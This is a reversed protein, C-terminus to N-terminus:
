CWRFGCRRIAEKALEVLCILGEVDQFSFDIAKRVATVCEMKQAEELILKAAEFANHSKTSAEMAFNVDQTFDLLRVFSPRNRPVVIYTGSAHSVTCKSPTAKEAIAQNSLNDIDSLSSLPSEGQPVMSITAQLENRDRNSASHKCFVIRMYAVEMCKYALAAATMEKRKEYQQGCSECLRAATSYARMQNIERHAGNEGNSTELLSAGHLFKLAAQFFVENSEFGFSSTELLEAYDKLDKAEKLADTATQGSHNMRGPSPMNSSRMVHLNPLSQEVNHHHAQSKTGAHAPLKLLVKPSESNGPFGDFVVGQHAELLTGHDEIEQKTEIECHSFSKPVIGRADLQTVKSEGGFDQVLNQQPFIKQDTSCTVVSKADLEEHEKARSQNGMRCDGSLWGLSNKVGVKNNKLAKISKTGSNNVMNCKNEVVAGPLHLQGKPDTELGYRTSKRPHLDEHENVMNYVMKDSVSSRENGKSQSASDRRSGQPFLENDDYDYIKKFRDEHHSHETAHQDRLSPVNKTAYIDGNTLCGNEVGSYPMSKIVITHNADRDWCDLKSVKHYLKEEKEMGPQGLNGNGEGDWNRRGNGRGHVDGDVTDSRGSTDGASTFKGLYPIRMPSSSVSEVPSGNLAEFNARTKHPGSVKSSSSVAAMSVQRTVSRRRSSALGDLTKQSANKRRCKSIQHAKIISRVEEAGDVSNDRAKRNSIVNADNRHSHKVENKSVLSKEKQSGIESNEEEVHLGHGNQSEQQGKLKRKKGLNDTRNPMRADLGTASTQIQNALKKVSAVFREKVGGKLDESNSWENNKQRGKRNAQTPLATSTIGLRLLNSDPNQQKDASYIEEYKSKKSGEFAYHDPERKTKLKMKIQKPEGEVTFKEKQQFSPKKMVNSEVPLRTRGNLNRSLQGKTPNSMQTLGHIGGAKAIEKLGHEKKVQLCQSTFGSNNLGQDQLYATAHLSLAGNGNNQLLNQGESFLIQNYANVAQTTEDESVDCNNMGPLWDLMSCLWKEPLQDAKKGHPLLRWKQCRDCGVWYENVIPPAVAPPAGESALANEAVCPVVSPVDKASAGFLNNDVQTDSLTEKQNKTYTSQETDFDVLVADKPRSGFQRELPDMIDGKRQIQKYNTALSDRNNNRVKNIDKKLKLKHMTSKNLFAGHSVPINDKMSVAAKKTSQNGKSKINGESMAKEKELPLNIEDQMCFAAKTSVKKRWDEKCKSTASTRHARGRGNDGLDLSVDKNLNEVSQELGEEGSCSWFKWKKSQGGDVGAISELSDTKAPNSCFLRDRIGDNNTEMSVESTIATSELPDAINLDNALMVKGGRVIESKKNVLLIKDDVVNIGNKHKREVLKEIKENFKAKKEALPKGKTLIPENLLCASREQSNDLSPMHKNDRYPREKEKKFLFFLSEHLPSVLEGGPVQSSTMVQLIISLSESMTEQYISPIAGSEEPNNGLSSSPSDDLGLGSYIAAKKSKIDPLKIRFKLSNQEAPIKSRNLTEGKLSPKDTAQTFIDQRASFSQSTNGNRGTLTAHPPATSNQSAGELPLNNPSRPTTYNKEVTKPHSLISPSREYTPLFSGYGGFKAGLNEASVGGEFDKQFHGLVNQLKEDIYSLAIDLDINDDDDKSYWAEVEELGSNEEM